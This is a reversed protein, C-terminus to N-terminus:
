YAGDNFGESFARQVESDFHACAGVIGEPQQFVTFIGTVIVNAGNRICPVLNPYNIAGDINILFESGHKKRLKSLELTRGVTREMFRQGAFGPEVAMLTVMEVMDVYPEIVEIRESPNIVVGPRMGAEKIKTLTRIPFSTSDSHFSFWDAGADRCRSIYSIPDDVMLHLDITLTPFDKKIDSIVRMPFCLNPVYHGDMLDVHVYTCGGEVLKEMDRRIDLVNCNAISPSNIVIPKM